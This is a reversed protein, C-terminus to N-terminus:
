GTPRRTRGRGAVDGCHQDHRTGRLAGLARQGGREGSPGESAAGGRQEGATGQVVITKAGAATTTATVAVYDVDEPARVTYERVEATLAPTCGRLGDGRSAGRRGRGAGHAHDSVGGPGAADRGVVAEASVRVVTITYTKTTYDDPATATVKIVNEGVQLPVPASAAGSSM